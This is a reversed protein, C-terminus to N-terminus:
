IELLTRPGALPHDLVRHAAAAGDVVTDGVVVFGADFGAPYVWRGNIDDLAEPRVRFRNAGLWVAATTPPAGTRNAFGIQAHGSLAPGRADLRAVVRTDASPEARAAGAIAALAAVAAVPLARM